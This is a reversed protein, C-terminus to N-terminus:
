CKLAPFDIRWELNQIAVAGDDVSTMTSTVPIAPDFAPLYKHSCVIPEVTAYGYDLAFYSCHQVGTLEDVGLIPMSMITKMDGLNQQQTPGTSTNMQHDSTFVERLKLPNFLNVVSVKCGHAALHVKALQKRYGFYYGLSVAGADELYMRVVFNHWQPSAGIQVFPILLMFEGYDSGIPVPQGNIIWSTQTQKGYLHIMPHAQPHTGQNAALALNAGQPLLAKAKSRSVNAFVMEGNFIARGGGLPQVPPPRHNDDGDFDSPPLFVSTVM